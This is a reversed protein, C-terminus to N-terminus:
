HNGKLEKLERSGNERKSNMKVKIVVENWADDRFIEPFLWTLSIRKRFKSCYM